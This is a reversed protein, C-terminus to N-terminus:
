FDLSGQGFSPWRDRRRPEVPVISTPRATESAVVLIHEAIATLM